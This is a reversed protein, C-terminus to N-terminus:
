ECWTQKWLCIKGLQLVKLQAMHNQYFMTVQFKNKSQLVFTVALISYTCFEADPFIDLIHRNTDCQKPEANRCSLIIRQLTNTTLLSFGVSYFIWFFIVRNKLMIVSYLYGYQLIRDHSKRFPEWIVPKFSKWIFQWKKFTM